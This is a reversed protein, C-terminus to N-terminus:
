VTWTIKNSGSETDNGKTTDALIDDALDAEGLVQYGVQDLARSHPACRDHNQLCPIFKALQLEVAETKWTHTSCLTGTAGARPHLTKAAPTEQQHPARPPKDRLICRDLIAKTRANTCALRLDPWGATGAIQKTQALLHQFGCRPPPQSPLGQTLIFTKHTIPPM